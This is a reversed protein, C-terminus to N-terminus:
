EFLTIQKLKRNQQQRLQYSRSIYTWQLGGRRSVISSQKVSKKTILGDKLLSRFVVGMKSFDKFDTNLSLLENRVDDSSFEKFTNNAYAKTFGHLIIESNM